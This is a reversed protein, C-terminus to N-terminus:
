FGAKASYYSKDFHHLRIYGDESGSAYGRGNPMFALTNIPGFHGKVSGLFHEYVLHHFDAEFHGVKASTTTVNMAEQGGGVLVHNYLPSISADNLPRDSQYAKILELTKSDYLKATHDASATILMTQDKSFRMNMIEKKHAQVKVTQTGSEVDWLRLCGDKGCSIITQNLAGWLACNMKDKSDAPFMTRVPEDTQDKLDDALNFIFISPQSSFTQDQVATFMREGHAFSVSRIGAKFSWNFLETGKELDWLKASRDASGTLLRTSTWNPDCDWVTGVHGSYTGLREGNETYWVTPTHDKACTFLLDGERNFKVTTLPREHGKLLIPKM